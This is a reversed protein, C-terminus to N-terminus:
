KKWYLYNEDPSAQEDQRLFFLPTERNWDKHVANHTTDQAFQYINAAWRQWDYSDTVFEDYQTARGVTNNHLDMVMDCPANHGIKEWYIDMVLWALHKSTYRRLLANVLMHKYADSRTGSTLEGPFYFKEAYYARAKSQMIRYYLYSGPGFLLIPLTLDEKMFFSLSDAFVREDLRWAEDKISLTDLKNIAVFATDDALRNLTQYLQREAATMNLLEMEASDSVFALASKTDSPVTAGFELTAFDFKRPQKDPILNEALQVIKRVMGKYATQPYLEVLRQELYEAKSVSDRRIQAAKATHFKPTEANHFSEYERAVVYLAEAAFSPIAATDAQIEPLTEVAAPAVVKKSLCGALLAIILTFVIIRKM